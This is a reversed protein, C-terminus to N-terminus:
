TTEQRTTLRKRLGRTTLHLIPAVREQTVGPLLLAARAADDVRQRLAEAAAQAADHEAVLEAVRDLAAAAARLTDAGGSTTTM